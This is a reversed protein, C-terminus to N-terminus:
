RVAELMDAAALSDQRSQETYRPDRSQARFKKVAAPVVQAPEASQLRYADLRVSVRATGRASRPGEIWVVPDSSYPDVTVTFGEPWPYANLQAQARDKFRPVRRTGASVM